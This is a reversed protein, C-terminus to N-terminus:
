FLKWSEQIELLMCFILENSRSMRSICDIKSDWSWAPWVWKQGHGCLINWDVALKHSNTDVHVFDPLKLWKNQLYPQTYFGAIQSASFMKAWIEPTFFKWEPVCCIVYIKVISWIWYFNNVLIKLNLFDLKQSMKPGNKWYKPCFFKWSFQSQWACSWGLKYCSAM